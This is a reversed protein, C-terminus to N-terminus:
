YTQFHGLDLVEVDCNPEIHVQLKHFQLKQICNRAIITNVLIHKGQM